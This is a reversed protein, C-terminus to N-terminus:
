ACFGVLGRVGFGMLFGGLWLLALAFHIKTM